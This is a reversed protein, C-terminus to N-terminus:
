GVSGRLFDRLDNEYDPLANEMHKRAAWLSHAGAIGGPVSGGYVFSPNYDSGATYGAGTGEEQYKFYDKPFLWGVSARVFGGRKNAPAHIARLGNIMTGTDNRGTSNGQGASFREIGYKTEAADLTFAAAVVGEEALGNVVDAAAEALLTQTRLIKKELGTMDVTVSTRTASSRGAM